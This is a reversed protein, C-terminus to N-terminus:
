WGGDQHDESATKEPNGSSLLLYTQPDLLSALCVTEECLISDISFYDGTSMSM